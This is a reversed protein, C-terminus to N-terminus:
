NYVFAEFFVLLAFMFAAIYLIKFSTPVTYIIWSIVFQM